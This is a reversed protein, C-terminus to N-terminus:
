DRLEVKLGALRNWGPVNVPQPPSTLHLNPYREFLLRLATRIEMLALPRGLCFHAGFSFGLHPNPDRAVDLADPDEFVKADRNAAGLLPMLATGRPVLVGGIEVDETAYNPKTGDVSGCFRVLEEAAIEWAAEGARLRALQDPHELLAAAGNTIQHVTTEFGAVILLFAMAVLEDESLREGEEEVEILATLLDDGPSERKRAVLDRVFGAVKRLDFLLTRLLSFGNLGETLVRLSREFARIEDNGIGMLAAIVQTPVDRAYTTLLDIEGAGELAALREACLAEVRSELQTVARSTFAKNVLTRHRRHEPDDEYIMSKTLAAVAKPMPVPLPSGGGKGRARSRNRIFRDDTLLFRCEEYGVVVKLKIISIKADHIPGAEHLARYFGARDGKFAASGLDFPRSFDITPTEPM